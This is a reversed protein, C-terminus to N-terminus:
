ALHHVVQHAVRQRVGGRTGGHPQPQAGRVAVDDDLDGVAARAEGRLLVFPDELAEVTGVGRAGPTRRQGALGAAGPKPQSDHRRQDGRVFAGDLYLRRRTLSRGEPDPQGGHGLRSHNGALKWPPYLSSSTGTSLSTPMVSYSVCGGSGTGGPPASRPALPALASPPLSGPPRGCCPAPPM